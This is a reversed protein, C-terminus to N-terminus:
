HAAMVTKIKKQAAIVKAVNSGGEFSTGSPDADNPDIRSTPIYLPSRAVKVQGRRALDYTDVIVLEGEVTVQKGM